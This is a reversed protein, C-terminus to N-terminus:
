YRCSSMQNDCTVWGSGSYCETGHCSVSGIEKGRDNFCTATASCGSGSENHALAEVNALSFSSLDNENPNVSMNFAVAVAIATIAIGGIIIKKM